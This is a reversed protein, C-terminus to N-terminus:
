QWSIVDDTAATSSKAGTGGTKNNGLSWAIVGQRISATGAGTNPDYRNPIQNDYDADMDVAYASGWPDFFQGDLAKIGSRPNAQDKADPPSVFVIRRTNGLTTTIGRLDNFLSGNLNSSAGGVVAAADSTATTPYRGYETYFANVATVIQVLDNKAQTKRASNQVSTFAPFALGLLIGITAMVVFLEILTFAASEGGRRHTREVLECHRLAM